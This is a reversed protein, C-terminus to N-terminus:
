PMVTDELEQVRDALEQLQQMLAASDAYLTPVIMVPNIIIIPRGEMLRIMTIEQGLLLQGGGTNVTRNTPAGTLRFDFIALRHVAGTEPSRLQIDFHYDGPPFDTDASTLQISFRGEEPAQPVFDKVVYAFEDERDFDYAEKKITFSVELGTLDVPEEEPTRIVVPITISTGRNIEQYFYPTSPVRTTGGRIRTPM